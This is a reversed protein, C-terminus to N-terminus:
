FSFELRGVRRRWSYRDDLGGKERMSIGRVPEACSPEAVGAIVDFERRTKADEKIGDEFIATRWEGEEPWLSVCVPRAIQIVKGEDVCHEDAVVMVVVQRM